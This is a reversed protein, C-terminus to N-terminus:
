FNKRICEIRNYAAATIYYGYTQEVDTIDEGNNFKEVGFAVQKTVEVNVLEQIQASSMNPDTVLIYDSAGEGILIHVNDTIANIEVKNPSYVENAWNILEEYVDDFEIKYVTPTESMCFVQPYCTPNLNSVDIKKVNASM